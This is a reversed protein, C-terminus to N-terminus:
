DQEGTVHTMPPDDVVISLVSLSFQISHRHDFLVYPVRDRTHLIEKWNATKAFDSM